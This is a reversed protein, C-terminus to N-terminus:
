GGLRLPHVNQAGNGGLPSGARRAAAVAIELNRKAVANTYAENHVGIQDEAVSVLNRIEYRDRAENYTTRSVWFEATARIVPYGHQALWASDRTALYYQWQAIAVDGNIHIEYLANQYAFRPTTENGLDDAEWPYMAGRYGNRRANSKAAELTRSRFMVISRAAEPHLLLLPPFMWTDADWFVHGYYGASSLGMPPLSFDTGERVSSLLYFLMSRVLRQLATDGEIRVDTEWLTHWAAAHDAFLADYGREAAARALERARQLPREAHSSSAVAVIKDFTYTQGAAAHFSLDFAASTDSVAWDVSLGPLNEPWSPIAAEGVRTPRGEAQAELWIVAGNTDGEVGATRVIMHGPYWLEPPGWEPEVKPLTALRLRKPAPWGSLPFRVTLPGPVRPTLQLRVLAIHPDSRSVFCLIRVGAASTGARWEYTTEVYGEYMQVTQRYASLRKHGPDTAGLWRGAARVDIENWAPLLAIRPVDGEAEDYVWAM